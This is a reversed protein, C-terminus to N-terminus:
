RLMDVKFMKNYFTDCKLNKEHINDSLRIEVEVWKGNRKGGIVAKIEGRSSYIITGIMKFLAYTGLSREYKPETNELSLPPNFPKIQRLNNIRAIVDKDNTVLYMRVYLNEEYEKVIEKDCYGEEAKIPLSMSNSALSLYQHYALCAVMRDELKPHQDRNLDPNVKNILEDKVCESVYIIPEYDLLLRYADVYYFFNTDPLLALHKPNVEAGKFKVSKLGVLAELEESSYGRMLNRLLNYMKKAEEFNGKDDSHITFESENVGERVFQLSLEGEDFFNVVRSFASLFEHKSSFKNISPLSCPPEKVYSRKFKFDLNYSEFKQLWRPVEPYASRFYGPGELYSIGKKNLAAIISFASAMHKTGGTIDIADCDLKLKLNEAYSSPSVTIIESKLGEEGKAYQRTKDTVLFVVKELDFYEMYRRVVSLTTDETAGVTVCLTKVDM